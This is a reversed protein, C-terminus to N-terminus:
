RGRGEGEGEGWWQYINIDSIFATASQCIHFFFFFIRWFHKSYMNKGLIFCRLVIM